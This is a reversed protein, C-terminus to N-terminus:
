KFVTNPLKEIKRAWDLLDMGNERLEQIAKPDPTSLATDLIVHESLDNELLTALKSVDAM